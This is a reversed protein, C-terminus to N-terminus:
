KLRRKGEGMERQTNLLLIEVLELVHDGVLLHPFDQAFCVYIHLGQDSLLVKTSGSEKAYEKQFTPSPGLRPLGM